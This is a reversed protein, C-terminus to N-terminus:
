KVRFHLSPFSSCTLYYRESFSSLDSSSLSFRLSTIELRSCERLTLFSSIVLISSYNLCCLFILSFLVSSNLIRNYFSCIWSLLSFACESYDILFYSYFSYLFMFLERSSCSFRDTVAYSSSFDFCKVKCSL